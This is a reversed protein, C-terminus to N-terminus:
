TLATTSRRNALASQLARAARLHPPYPGANIPTGSEKEEKKCEHSLARITLSGAVVAPMRQRLDTRLAPLEKLKFLLESAFRM